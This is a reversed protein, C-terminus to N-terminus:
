RFTLVGGSLHKRNYGKIALAFVSSERIWEESAKILATEFKQRDYGSAVAIRDLVAYQRNRILIRGTAVPRDNERILLYHSIEGSIPMVHIDMKTNKRIEVVEALEWITQVRKIEM